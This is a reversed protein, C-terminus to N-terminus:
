RRRRLGYLAGAVILVGFIIAVFPWVDLNSPILNPQVQQLFYIIGAILIILGIAIGFIAGGGPLGFCEHEMRRYPEATVAYLPAGCQSCVSADDPNKTGCKTCYVM